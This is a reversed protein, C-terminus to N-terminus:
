TVITSTLSYVTYFLTFAVGGVIAAVFVTVCPGFLSLALAIRSTVDRDFGDGLKKLSEGLRGVQEGSAIVSIAVPTLFGSREMARAFSEGRRLDREAADLAAGVRAHDVATRTTAVAQLIPLGSAVLTGLHRCLRARLTTELVSGALPVALSARQIARRGAPTRPVAVAAALAAGALAALAPASRALARSAELLVLAPLPLKGGLPEFVKEYSPIVFAVLLVLLLAVAVLVAVPYAVAQRIERSLKEQWELHTAVEALAADLRGSSEASEVLGAVFESAVGPHERLAASLPRGAAVTTRISEVFARESPEACQEALVALSPVLAAGGGLLTALNQFLAIRSRPALRTARRRRSAAPSSEAARTVRVLREGSDALRRVLDGEDAAERARRRVVGRSDLVTCHFTRM